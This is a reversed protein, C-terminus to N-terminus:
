VTKKGKKAKDFFLLLTALNVDYRAGGQLALHPLFLKEVLPTVMRPKAFVGEKGDYLTLVEAFWPLVESNGSLFVRNPIAFHEGLASLANAYEKLWAERAKKVGKHSERELLKARIEISGGDDGLCRLVSHMGCPFSISESLIEDKVVAIDTVEGDIDVILFNKEEPFIDRIISFATLGYSHPHLSYNSMVRDISAFVRESFSASMLSILLSVKLDKTMKQLPEHTAYGNLAAEVLSEELVVADAGIHPYTGKRVDEEFTKRGSAALTRLVDPTIRFPTSATKNLVLTKSVYWTSSLVLGVRHIRAPRGQIKAYQAVGDTALTKLLHELTSFTAEYFRDYELTDQFPLPERATFYFTPTAGGIEALAVGVSASGIHILAVTEPQNQSSFLSFM